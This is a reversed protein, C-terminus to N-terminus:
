TDKVWENTRMEALLSDLNETTPASPAATFPSSTRTNNPSLMAGFIDPATITVNATPSHAQSIAMSPLRHTSSIRRAGFSQQDMDLSHKSHTSSTSAHHSLSLGAGSRILGGSRRIQPLADDKDLSALPAAAPGLSLPVHESLRSATEVSPLSFSTSLDEDMTPSSYTAIPTTQHNRVGSTSGVFATPTEVTGVARRYTDRDNPSDVVTPIPLEPPGDNRDQPDQWTNTAVDHTKTSTIALEQVKRREQTKETKTAVAAASVSPQAARSSWALAKAAINTGAKSMSAAANSDQIADTYRRLLSRPDAAQQTSTSSSFSGELPSATILPQEDQESFTSVSKPRSVLAPTAAPPSIKSDLSVSRHSPAHLSRQVTAALREQINVRPHTDSRTRPRPNLNMRESLMRAGTQQRMQFALSIIPRANQIPYSQLLQMCSYFVDHSNKRHVALKPSADKDSGSLNRLELLQDRVTLLMACCMHVLMEVHPNSDFNSSEDTESLLVDWLNAVVDSPLDAALLCAIWRFSYYPLQPDLSNAHLFLWLQPDEARLRASLFRLCHSMGNGSWHEPSQMTTFVMVQRMQDLTSVNNQEYEFVKRFMGMLSSFCWFVDAETDNTNGLGLVKAEWPQISKTPFDRAACFVRMLVLLIEHMGQMYGITPNLMAYVFLIRLMSHWQRDRYTVIVPVSASDRYLTFRDSSADHYERNIQDLRRLLQHRHHIDGNDMTYMSWAETQRMLFESHKDLCRMLDSYVQTLLRDTSASEGSTTSQSFDSLFHLYDNRRMTVTTSWLAKEPPLYSLLVKWAQSRVWPPLRGLDGQLCADRLSAKTVQEHENKFAPFLVRVLPFRSTLSQKTEGQGQPLSTKQM